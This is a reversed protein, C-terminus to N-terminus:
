SVLQVSYSTYDTYWRGTASFTIYDSAALELVVHNSFTYVDAAGYGTIFITGNKRIAFDGGGGGQKLGTFIVQYRGAIPATFRGNGTNFNSGINLLNATLILPNAADGSTGGSGTACMMPQSPMTVRGSSDASLATGAATILSAAASGTATLSSAGTSTQGIMAPNVTTLAM